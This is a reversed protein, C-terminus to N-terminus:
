KGTYIHIGIALTLLTFVVFFILTHVLVAKGNTTFSGFEVHRTNGPIQFILGPSLLIFLLLGLLIPAWDVMNIRLISSRKTRYKCANYDPMDLAKYLLNLMEKWVVLAKERSECGYGVVVKFQGDSEELTRSM